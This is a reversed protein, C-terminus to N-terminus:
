EVCLKTCMYMGMIRLVMTDMVEDEFSSFVCIYNGELEFSKINVKVTLNTNSAPTSFSDKNTFPKGSKYGTIMKVRHNKSDLRKWSSDSINQTGSYLCRLHVDEGFVGIVAHDMIIDKLVVDIQLILFDCM